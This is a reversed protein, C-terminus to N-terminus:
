VTLRVGEWPECIVDDAGHDLLRISHFRDPSDTLVLIPLQSDVTPYAGVRVADLLKLTDLSLDIIL